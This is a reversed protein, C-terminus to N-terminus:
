LILIERVRFKHQSEGKQKGSHRLLSRYSGLLAPVYYSGTIKQWSNFYEGINSGCSKCYGKTSRSAPLDPHPSGQASETIETYQHVEAGAASDEM